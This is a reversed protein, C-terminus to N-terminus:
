DHIAGSIGVIEACSTQAELWAVAEAAETMIARLQGLHNYRLQGGRTGVSCFFRQKSEICRQIDSRYGVSACMAITVLTAPALAKHGENWNRSRYQSIALCDPTRKLRRGTLAM